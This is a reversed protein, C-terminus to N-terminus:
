PCTNTVPVNVTKTQQSVNDFVTFLVNVIANAAQAPDVTGTNNRMLTVPGPAGLLNGNINLIDNGRNSSFQFSGPTVTQQNGTTTTTGGGSVIVSTSTGCTITPVPSPTIIIPNPTTTSPPPNTGLTNHLTVTVSHGASDTIVITLPDVCAGNTTVTFGAGSTQVVSPSVTVAQPFSPAVTYPPSGGFIYYTTAVGSSCTQNDPGAIKADTPQVVLDAASANNTSVIVFAGRVYAGTSVDTAQVIATQTAAGPIARMRVVANGNQDSPVTYTLAYMPAQGPLETNIQFAGQIVDFRVLRGSIGGGVTNAVKVALSGTQGSCVFSSAATDTPNASGGPNPCTATYGDPKLTMSNILPSPNVTVASTASAAFKDTVTLTVNTVAAVINPVLTVTSGDVNAQVALTSQNSSFIQYPPQGGQITITTPTMSYATLAAPQVALDGPTNLVNNPAGSGGGCGALGILGALAFLGALIRAWVAFRRNETM